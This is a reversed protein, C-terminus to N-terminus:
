KKLSNLRDLFEVQDDFEKGIEDLMTGITDIHCSLEDLRKQMGKAEDRLEILRLITAAVKAKHPDKNM